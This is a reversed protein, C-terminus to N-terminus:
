ALQCQALQCQALQCQAVNSQQLVHEICVPITMRQKGPFAIIRTLGADGTGPPALPGMDKKRDKFYV